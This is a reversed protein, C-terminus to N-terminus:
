LASGCYKCFEADQDHGDTGCAPCAQTSVPRRQTSVLEATVIGTPVAIIGYGLIMLFAALTQGLPTVPAIDGYGVTTMTVVAWYISRPISTFGSTEGEVVYMVSGAILVAVMVTGLFVTIKPRSAKLAQMLTRAEGVFRALKLVRFVRLLRFARIVLFYQSGALFLGAYTPLVALLDVIGYFSWVYRLPHRVSLTRLVYEISFLVTFFWEVGRLINGYRLRVGAVSELMVALISIIISSLLAIDFTRGLPTDAEYIIEHARARWGADPPAESVTRPPRKRSDM